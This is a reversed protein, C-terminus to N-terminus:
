PCIKICSFIILLKIACKKDKYCDSIFGLMGDNEIIVKDCMQKTKYQDPVYKILKPLKKVANKCIKLHDPVFRIM